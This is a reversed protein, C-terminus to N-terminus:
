SFRKLIETLNESFLKYQLKQIRDEMPKQMDAKILRLLKEVSPADNKSFVKINDNESGYIALFINRIHYKQVPSCDSFMRAFEPIDLEKAFYGNRFIAKRNEIINNFSQGAEEPLYKFRLIAQTNKKLASEM